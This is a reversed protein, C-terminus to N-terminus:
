QQRLIVSSYHTEKFPYYLAIENMKHLRLVIDAHHHNQQSTNHNQFFSITSDYDRQLGKEKSTM